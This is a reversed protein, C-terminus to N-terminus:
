EGGETGFYQGFCAMGANVGNVFADSTITAGSIADIQNDAAAGTKTVEFAEAKKNKFQPKLVEEARMGLGATEAISLISVGNLTGDARVGMTFQIDGGYGEHTTVTIVYGMLTGDESLASSISDISADYGQENVYATLTEPALDPQMSIEEFKGADAFVEKYAENRAKEQQQAIPEKTIEYVIGLLAGSILTILFLIMADKLMNKM